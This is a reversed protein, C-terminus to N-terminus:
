TDRGPNPGEQRVSTGDLDTQAWRSPLSFAIGQEEFARLISLNLAQGFRLYDWYDPPAYWYIFRLVFADVAFETFFVRPPFGELMGEHDRLLDEVIQIARELKNRPTNLPIRLDAVRRIYPRRGINEIEIKAMEENPVSAAHGTLLRLKTSRLGIEEVVGDFRNALIREGVQYPKDMIIMMSGLINKLTDQAAMAISLGGIGAGALLTSLPIGLRQGGELFVVILAVISFIRCTLRIVQADLGQPRFRPATVLVVMVRNASEWILGMMAFLVFLGLIFNTVWLLTGSLILYNVAIDKMVVPIVVAAIPFVLTVVYRAPHDDRSNGARMRGVRYFLNMAALGVVITLLLGLWQWVTHNGWKTRVSDPLRNVIWAVSPKSPETTYYELLGPTVAPGSTRQPLSKSYEYYDRSKDVTHASFLYEDKFPGDVMREIVIDTGPVRWREPPPDADPGPVDEPAPLEVRDLVEKLCVAAERVAQFLINEPIARCDMRRGLRQALIKRDAEAVTSRGRTSVFGYATNMDDVFGFLSARPSSTDPPELPHIGLGKEAVAGLPAALVCALLVSAGILPRSFGFTM